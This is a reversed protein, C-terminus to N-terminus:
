FWNRAPFLRRLSNPRFRRAQRGVRVLPTIDGRELWASAAAKDASGFAHLGVEHAASRQRADRTAIALACGVKEAARKVRMWGVEDLAFGPPLAVVVRSANAWELRDAISASDDEPAITIITGSM